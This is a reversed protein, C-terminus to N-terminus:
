IVSELVTNIDGITTEITTISSTWTATWTTDQVDATIHCMADHYTLWMSFSSAYSDVQGICCSSGNSPGYEGWFLILKPHSNSAAQRMAVFADKIAGTIEGNPIDTVKIGSNYIAADKVNYKTSGIQIESIDAM